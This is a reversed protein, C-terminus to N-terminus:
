RSLYWHILQPQFLTYIAAAIALFPGFPVETRMLSPEGGDSGPPPLDGRRVETVEAIAAPVEEAPAVPIGGTLAIAIGGISGLLSGAFMTFLMGPWGIFAGVMGILFVDGLGVGETHRVLLYIEGTIFLFGGGGVAGILSSWLGVEPMVLWAALMGVPIGVLTILNPIVRWDYDILAITYLTACFGFRAIADGLPFRLFLYAAAVALALETLFYRFPVAGGCMLCRGRLGIYAILPINAWAPIPRNCRPCFSRPTVISIERPLRYAVANVFSGACAGFLFAYLAGLGRPIEMLSDISGKGNEDPV